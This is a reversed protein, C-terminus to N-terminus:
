AHGTLAQQHKRRMRGAIISIIFLQVAHYMMLPLLVLGTGAPGTFLVKSMVSGHVLSKKSGCFLATISDERNLHLLRSVLWIAGYAIFLLATVMLLMALLYVPGFGNFIGSSFSDCFSCYVILLIIFQDFLKLQKKVSAAYSGLRGHLLLGATVPLLVQLMLKGTIDALHFGSAQHQMFFSMWLPTIFIGLLSSISANFIAGPVNGEALSVMVVSSSVTSPLVALFFFPLWVKQLFVTVFLPKLLIIVLPFLVFTSLHVLLHLRMNTLGSKLKEPGLQIGYLLFIISVGVGAIEDLHFPSQKTGPYPVLWALLVTLLLALVFPEVLRRKM